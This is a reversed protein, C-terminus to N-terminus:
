HSKVLVVVAGNVDAGGQQRLVCDRWSHVKFGNENAVHYVYKKSHGFRGSKLLRLGLESLSNEDFSEVTFVIIGSDVLCKSSERLIDSIDGIYIFVDSALICDCSKRALTSLYELADGHVVNSYVGAGASTKRERAIDIMRQSIDVGHLITSPMESAILNGLLGTGCGLEVIHKVSAFPKNTLTLASKMSDHVYEHGRYHLKDVLESEFRTSYGDFLGSIYEANLSKAQSIIDYNDHSTKNEISALQVLAHGDDPKMDLSRRFFVYARDYNERNKETIGMNNYLEVLQEMLAKKAGEGLNSMSRLAESAANEAENLFSLQEDSDVLDMTRGAAAAAISSRIFIILKPICEQGDLDTMPCDFYQQKAKLMAREYSKYALQPKQMKRLTAGKYDDVISENPCRASMYECLRLATQLYNELHKEDIVFNHLEGTSTTVVSSVVEDDTVENRLLLPMVQDFVEILSPDDLGEIGIATLFYQIAKRTDFLVDRSLTAARMLSEFRIRPPPVRKEDTEISPQGVDHYLQIVELVRDRDSESTDNNEHELLSDLLQALSHQVKPFLPDISLKERCIAIAEQIKGSSIGQSFANNNTCLVGGLILLLTPTIFKVHFIM